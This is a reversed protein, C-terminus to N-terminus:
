GQGVGRKLWFSLLVLACPAVFLLALFTGFSMRRDAYGVAGLLFTVWFLAVGLANVAKALTARGKNVGGGPSHLHVDPLRQRQAAQSDRPHVGHTRM